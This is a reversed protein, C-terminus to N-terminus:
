PTPRGSPGTMCWTPRPARDVVWGPVHQTLARSRLEPPTINVPAYGPWSVSWCRREEPVTVGPHDVPAYRDPDLAVVDATYRTENM